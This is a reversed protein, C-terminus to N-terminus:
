RPNVWTVVLWNGTTATGATNDVTGQTGAPITFESTLDAVTALESTVRFVSLLQDPIKALKQLNTADATQNAPAAGFLKTLALASATPTGTVMYVGNNAANVNDTVRVIDGAVYTAIAAGASTITVNRGSASAFVADAVADVSGVAIDGALDGPVSHAGAAGGPVVAMGVSYPFGSTFSM